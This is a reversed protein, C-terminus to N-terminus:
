TLLIHGLEVERGATSSPQRVNATRAGNGSAAPRTNCASDDGISVPTTLSRGSASRNISSSGGNGTGSASSNLNMASTTRAGGGSFSDPRPSPSRIGSHTPLGLVERVEDPLDPVTALQLYMGEAKQLTTELPIHM